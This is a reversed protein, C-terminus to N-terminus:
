PSDKKAELEQIRRRLSSVLEESSELTSVNRCGEQEAHFACFYYIDPQHRDGVINFVTPPTNCGRESCAMRRFVSRVKAM